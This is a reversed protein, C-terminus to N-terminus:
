LLIDFSQFRSLILFAFRSQQKRYLFLRGSVICLTVESLTSLDVITSM